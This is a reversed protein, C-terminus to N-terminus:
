ENCGRQVRGLKQIVGGGSELGFPLDMVLCTESAVKPSSTREELSGTRTSKQASHHPGQRAIAGTRSSSDLSRWPLTFITLSFTSSFGEVVTLYPTRDIGVIIRNLFPSAASMFIPAPVGLAPRDLHS